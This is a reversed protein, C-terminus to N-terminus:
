LNILFSEVDTSCVNSNNGPNLFKVLLPVTISGAFFSPLGSVKTGGFESPSNLSYINVTFSKSTADATDSASTAFVTATNADTIAIVIHFGVEDAIKIADGVRLEDLFKSSATGQLTGNSATWSVTSTGTVEPRDSPCISVKLSNGLAGAWKAMFPGDATIGSVGGGIAGGQEPDFTTFYHESDRVQMSTYAATNAASNHPTAANGVTTNAARVVNLANSYSLFNAGTFFQEFNDDNPKQFLDVLTDEDTVLTVEEIPGWRFRGVLGGTSTGAAVVVNTLDIESTNVGPSVQFAM